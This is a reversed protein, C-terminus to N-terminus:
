MPQLLDVSIRSKIKTSRTHKPIYGNTRSKSTKPICIKVTNELSSRYKM